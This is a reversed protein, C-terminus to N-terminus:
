KLIQYIGVLLTYGNAANTDGSQFIGNAPATLSTQFQVGELLYALVEAMEQAKLKCLEVQAYPDLIPGAAAQARTTQQSSINSYVTGLDTIIQSSNSAM